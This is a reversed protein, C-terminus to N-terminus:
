KHQVVNQIAGFRLGLSTYRNTHIVACTFVRYFSRLVSAWYVVVLTGTLPTSFSRREQTRRRRGEAVSFYSFSFRGLEVITIPKLPLNIRM